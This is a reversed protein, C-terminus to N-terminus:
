PFSLVSALTMKWSESVLIHIRRCQKTQIGHIKRHPRQQFRFDTRNSMWTNISQLCRKQTFPSFHRLLRKTDQNSIESLHPTVNAINSKLKKKWHVIHTRRTVFEYLCSLTLTNCRVPSINPPSPIYEKLLCFYHHWSSSRSSSFVCGLFHRYIPIISTFSFVVPCM